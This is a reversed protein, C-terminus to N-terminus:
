SDKREKLGIRIASEENLANALHMIELAKRKGLKKCLIRFDMEALSRPKKSNEKDDVMKIRARGLM